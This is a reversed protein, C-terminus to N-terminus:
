RRIPMAVPRMPALMGIEDSPGLPSATAKRLTAAHAAIRRKTADDVYSLTCM